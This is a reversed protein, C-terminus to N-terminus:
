SKKLQKQINILEMMLQNAKMKDNLLQAEKLEQLCRQYQQKLDEKKSLFYMLDHIEKETCEEPMELWEIMSLLNRNVADSEDLFNMFEQVLLEELHQERYSRLLIYFQQYDVYPFEFEENERALYSWAEPSHLLRYLLQKQSVEMPSDQSIKM